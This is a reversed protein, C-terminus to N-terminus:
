ASELYRWPVVQCERTARNPMIRSDAYHRLDHVRPAGHHRDIGCHALLRHFAQNITCQHLRRGRLNLLMPADPANPACPTRHALYAELAQTTSPALAVWRAKHFKGAAVFLRQEPAHFDELNLALAEGIRLGTSYLLGLLTRYTHPRLSEPPTLEAAGAMLAAVQEHTYIYPQHAAPSPILRLPQPVYSLPDRASLHRCLQTVVSFRNYQSRPALHRLSQQYADTVERIIRPELLPWDALFRDFYALLLAQSHYDTGSLQRLAIFRQIQQALCSHLSPINM